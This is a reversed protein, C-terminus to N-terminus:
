FLNFVKSVFAYMSSVHIVRQDIVTEFHRSLRESNLVLLKSSCGTLANM